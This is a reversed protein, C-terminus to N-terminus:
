IDKEDNKKYDADIYNDNKEKYFFEESKFVTTRNKSLLFKRILFYLLIIPLIILSLFAFFFIFLFIVILIFIVALIKKFDGFFYM